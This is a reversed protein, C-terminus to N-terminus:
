PLINWKNRINKLKPSPQSKKKGLALWEVEQAISGVCPKPREPLEYKWLKRDGFVLQAVLAAQRAEAETSIFNRWYSMGWGDVMQAKEM